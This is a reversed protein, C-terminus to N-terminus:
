ISIISIAERSSSYPLLCSVFAVWMMTEAIDAERFQIDHRLYGFLKNLYQYHKKVLLLLHER